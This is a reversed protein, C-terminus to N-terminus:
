CNKQRCGRNGKGAKYHQQLHLPRLRRCHCHKRRGHDARYARLRQRLATRRGCVGKCKKRRYRFNRVAPSSMEELMPAYSNRMISFAEDNRSALALEFIQDRYQISETLLSELQDVLKVDGRFTARITPFTAQMDLLSAKATEVKAEIDSQRLELIASLVDARASQMRQRATWANVTVTYSMDYFKTLNAGVGRLMLMCAISAALSVIIIVAYSLLLRTRIKMNKM